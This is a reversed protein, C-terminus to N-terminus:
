LGKLLSACSLASDQIDQIRSRDHFPCSGMSVTCNKCGYQQFTRSVNSIHPCWRPLQHRGTTTSPTVKDRDATERCISAAPPTLLM